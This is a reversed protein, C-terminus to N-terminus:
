AAVLDAARDGVDNVNQDRFVNVELGDFVEMAEDYVDTQRQTAPAALLVDIEVDPEVQLVDGERSIVRAEDGDRLRRLAYGWSKVETSVDEVSAKQFSWAQTIQVASEGGVAFDLNTRLHSGVYVEPKERIIGPDDLRAKYARRLLALLTAKSVFSRSVKEPDIIL